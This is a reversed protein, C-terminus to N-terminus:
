AGEKPALMSLSFGFRTAQSHMEPPLISAELQADPDYELLEQVYEQGEHFSQGDVDFAGVYRGQCVFALCTGKGNALTIALAATLGQKHLWDCIFDMYESTSYDDNREVPYGLFLASMALVVHEPLDYMSVVTDPERYITALMSAVSEETPRTIPDAKNGYIGGVARGRLLLAASRSFERESTAKLCGTRMGGELDTILWQPDYDSIRLTTVQSGALPTVMLDTARRVRFQRRAPQNWEQFAVVNTHDRRTTDVQGSKEDSEELNTEGPQSANLQSPTDLHSPADLQSTWDIQEQNVFVNGSSATFRESLLIRNRDVCVFQALIEEGINHHANSPLYGPLNDKIILVAYGGPEPRVIRCYVNQGPKYGQVKWPNIGDGGTAGIRTKRKGRGSGDSGSATKPARFPVVNEQSDDKDSM